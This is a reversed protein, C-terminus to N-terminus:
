GRMDPDPKPALNFGRPTEGVLQGAARAADVESKSMLGTLKDFPITRPFDNGGNGWNDLLTVSV